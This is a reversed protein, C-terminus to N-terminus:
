TLGSTQEVIAILLMLEEAVSQPFGDRDGDRNDALLQRMYALAEAPQNWLEQLRTNIRSFEELSAEGERHLQAWNEAEINFNLKLERATREFQFRNGTKRYVELLKMRHLMSEKPHQRIHEMLIKAAENALGTSLMVGALELADGKEENATNPSTKEVRPPRSTRVPAPVVAKGVKAVPQAESRWRWIGFLLLLVAVGMLGYQSLLRSAMAARSTNPAVVPSDAVPMALILTHLEGTTTEIRTLRGLMDGVLSGEDLRSIDSRWELRLLSHEAQSLKGIRRTDLERSSRLGNDALSVSPAAACALLTCLLLGRWSAPAVCSFFAPRAFLRISM